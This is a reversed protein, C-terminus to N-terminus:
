FYRSSVMNKNKVQIDYGIFFEHSGANASQISQLAFDFAYGFRLKQNLNYELIISLENGSRFTIGTWLTENFLFSCNLEFQYAAQTSRFLASPKFVINKNIVFAKGIIATFHSYNKASGEYLVNIKSQNLNDLQIGVYFSETAFYSSFDFTATYINEVGSDKIQDSPDKFEAKGWNFRNNLLGASLGFALKGKALRFRYAFSGSFRTQSSAGASENRFKIGIGINKTLIPTNMTLSQMNPAGDIGTWQSRVIAALSFTERSGAYASNVEYLNFMYQTFRSEQQGLSLFSLSIFLLFLSFRKSM